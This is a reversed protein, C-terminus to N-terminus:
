LGVARLGLGEIRFGVVINLAMAAASEEERRSEPRPGGPDVREM